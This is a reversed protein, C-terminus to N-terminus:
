AGNKKEKHCECCKCKCKDAFVVFFLAFPGFLASLIFWNLGSRNKGQAIGAVILALMFWTLGITETEM